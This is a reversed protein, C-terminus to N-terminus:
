NLSELLEQQQRKSVHFREQKVVGDEIYDIIIFFSKITRMKSVDKINKLPITKVDLNDITKFPNFRYISFSGDSIEFKPVRSYVRYLRYEILTVSVTFLILLGLLWVSEYNGNKINLVLALCFIFGFILCGLLIILSPIRNGFFKKGM